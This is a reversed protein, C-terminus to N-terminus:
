AAPNVEPAREVVEVLRWRKLKSLPRTEVIRVRDGIRAEQKEDHAYFKNYTSIVKKFQPHPHRRLVQVVITRTMKNSVVEGVREKRKGRPEGTTAATTNTDAM